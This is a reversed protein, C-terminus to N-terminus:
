LAALRLTKPVLINCAEGAEVYITPRTDQARGLRQQAVQSGQSTIGLAVAGAGNNVMEQTLLQQGGRLGGIFVSTWILRWIHNDVIGTLGNTGTADMVPAEALEVSQGTPLSVSVAFTPIRENGLLLAGSDAKAVISQGQPILLHQGTVSDMVPRRTKATFYGPIESNLTTELTCPIWTGPTLAYTDPVDLSKGKHEYSVFHMPPRKITPVPTAPKATTTVPAKRKRLEDLAREQEELRRQLRKLEADRPDVGNIEPKDDVYTAKKAGKGMWHPWVYNYQAVAREIPKLQGTFRAWSIAAVWAGAIALLVMLAVGIRVGVARPRRQLGTHFTAM